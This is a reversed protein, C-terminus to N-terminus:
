AETRRRLRQLGLLMGLGGLLGTIASPEPVVVVLNIDNNTSDFVLTGFAGGAFSGSLNAGDLSGNIGGPAAFLTYTGSTLGGANSFSFDSFGLTGSGINLTGSSLTLKDSTSGLAFLLSGSNASGIASMDFTGPGLALTLNGPTAGLGPALSSGSAFTVNGGNGNTGTTITGIGGLSAGNAVNVGATGSLSGSVLLAGGNVNTLGTYTNNAALTLSNAGLKTLTGGVSTLATAFTVSQGNTDISIAQNVATSFRGSYDNNNAATYQLTGGGFIITGVATASQKGLPGSTGPTEASALSIVGGNITTAGTYVNANGLVLTGTGDKTLSASGSGIASNLTLVGAGTQHVILEANVAGLQGGTVIENNAGKFLLGQSTVTLTNTSAGLSITGFNTTTDITLSNVSRNTLSGGNTWTLTGGNGGSYATGLTTFNTTSANSNAALTTGTTDDYRTIAVGTGAARTAFGIVGSSDKVLAWGYIGNTLVAGTTAAATVVTRTGSNASSYDFLLSSGANRTWASGLTLTVGFGNNPDLTIASGTYATLTLNGMTQSSTGTSSKVEFNGGGLTLATGNGSNLLGGANMDLILTGANVTTTGAYGSAGTIVLTGAGAQTVSMVNAGNQNIVGVSTIATPSVGNFTFTRSASDLEALSALTTTGGVMNNSLYGNGSTTGAGAFTLNYGSSNTITLTPNSLVIAGLQITNGTNGSGNDGVNITPTNSVTVNYGTSNGSGGFVIANNAGTGASLLSLKGSASLSVAGATLSNGLGNLNTVVLMGGNITTNGSYTNTGGVRWTGTGTKAVTTNNTGALNDAITGDIQGIGSTSGQLTLTKSGGGTFSFGNTFELVGSGSQDITAGGSTGTLNIVRDTIEGAGTYLLKGAATGSGISVVGGVGLNSSLSTSSGISAVSLTGSNIYTGGTYTNAGSLTLTGSSTTTLSGAVGGGAASNSIVGSIVTNTNASGNITVGRGISSSESLYLNGALTLINGAGTISNTLSRAALSNTINGNFTLSNAGSVTTTGNIIVNNSIALNAILSQITDTGTTLTGSALGGNSANGLQLIGASVTTAGSSSNTGTLALTGAGSLTTTGSYSNAGGLTWKGATASVTLSEVGGGDSINGSILNGTGTGAGSLTLTSTATNAISGNFVLASTTDARNNTFSYNGGLTIPTNFTEVLNTGAAGSTLTINGGSGLNFQGGAGGTNFTFSGVSTDFTISSLSQSAADLSVTGSLSNFLAIDGVTPVGPNWNAPLDWLGDGTTWTQTTAANASKSALLAAISGVVILSRRCM